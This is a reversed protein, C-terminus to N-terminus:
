TSGPSTAAGAASFRSRLATCSRSAPAPSTASTTRSRSRAILCLCRTSSAPRCCRARSCGTRSVGSVTLCHSVSLCLCVCLSCRSRSKRGNDQSGQMESALFTPANTPRRLFNAVYTGQQQMLVQCDHSPGRQQVLGAPRAPAEVTQELPALEPRRRLAGGSITRRRHGGPRHSRDAQVAPSGRDRETERQSETDLSIFREHLHASYPTMLM